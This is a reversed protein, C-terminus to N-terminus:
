RLHRCHSHQWVQGAFKKDKWFAVLFVDLSKTEHKQLNMSVFVHFRLENRETCAAFVSHLSSVFLAQITFTTSLNETM